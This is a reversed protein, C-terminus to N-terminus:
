PTPVEPGAPGRYPHRATLVLLEDAHLGQVLRYEVWGLEGLISGDGDDIVVVRTRDPGGIVRLSLRRMM